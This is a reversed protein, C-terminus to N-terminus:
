QSNLEHLLWDLVGDLNEYVDTNTVRIVRFGCRELEATRLEDRRREEGTSHTAGDVELVLKANIVAFDVIYRGIPHQRRFKWRGLERNRLERWLIEEAATQEVRM